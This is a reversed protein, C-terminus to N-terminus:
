RFVIGMGLRRGGKLLEGYGDEGDYLATVANEALASGFRWVTKGDVATYTRTEGNITVTLTGSGTVRLPLEFFTTRGPRGAWTAALSQEPNVLVTHAASEVVGPTAETVEMTQGGIDAAYVGRWDAELAGIDLAGNYIRQRGSLDTDALKSSLAADAADAALNAGVIPRGDEDVQLNAGVTAVSNGNTALHGGYYNLANLTGADTAVACNVFNTPGPSWDWNGVKGIILSNKMVYARSSPGSFSDLVTCGELVRWYFFGGWSANQYCVNNRTLCGYQYADSTAGGGYLGINGDFICDICTSGYAGGGRFAVGNTFVCREATGSGRMCGGCTDVSSHDNAGAPTFGRTHGDALTFGRVTAGSNAFVCRVANTGLGKGAAWPVYNANTPVIEADAEAARGKIVTAAAGDTSELTVGTPVVARSPLLATTSQYMEGQDYTGPLAKVTDSASLYENTLARALTKFAFTPNYGGNSTDDGDVADVYWNSTMIPEVTLDVGEEKTVTITTADGKAFLNTAGNVVFGAIPRSGGAKLGVTLSAGTVLDNYGVTGGMVSVGGNGDGVYAGGTFAEQLAGAVPRGASDFKWPNGHYDMTCLYWWIGAPDDAPSVAVGFAPSHLYLSFDPEAAASMANRLMPDGVTYGNGLYEFFGNYLCGATMGNQNSDSPRRMRGGRCVVSNFRRSNVSLMGFANHFGDCVATTNLLYFPFDQGGDDFVFGTDGTITNGGVLCSIFMGAYSLGNGGTNGTILCRAFRATGIACNRGTNNTIICDTVHLDRGYSYLAGRGSGVLAGVGSYGGTLTFGQVAAQANMSVTMYANAGCGDASAPDRAGLIVTKEPGDTSVLRVRRSGLRVRAYVTGSDSSFSNNEGGTSYVGPKVFIVGLTDVVNDGLANVADQIVAYPHDESGDQAPDDANSSDVWKFNQTRTYSVTMAVNTSPPPIFWTADENWLPFRLNGMGTGHSSLSFSHFAEGESPAIGIKISTPYNSPWMWAALGTRNPESMGQFIVQENYAVLAGAAPVATQQVAGCAITGTKPIPNGYLDIYPDIRFDESLGLRDVEPMPIIEDSGVYQPDGATVAVTGERLRIDGLTPAMMMRTSSNDNIQNVRSSGDDTRM